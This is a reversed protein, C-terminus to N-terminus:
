SWSRTSLYYKKTYYWGNQVKTIQIYRLHAQESINKRAKQSWSRTSPYNKRACIAGFILRKTILIYRLHAQEAIKIHWFYRQELQLTINKTHMIYVKKACIADFILRKQLWPIEWINWLNRRKLQEVHHSNKWESINM